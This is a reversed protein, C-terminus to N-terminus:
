PHYKKFEIQCPKPKNKNRPNPKPQQGSSYILQTLNLGNKRILRDIHGIASFLNTPNWREGM